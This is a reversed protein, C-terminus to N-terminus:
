RSFAVVAWKNEILEEAKDAVERYEPGAAERFGSVREAFDDALGMKSSYDFRRRRFEMEKM